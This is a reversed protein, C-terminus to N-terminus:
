RARDLTINLAVPTISNIVEFIIYVDYNHLDENPVVEVTIVRARKEYLTITEEIANKLQIATIDSMNEFLLSRIKCGVDPQFLREGPETLILNRVSRKVSNENTYKVLRKNQPHANFNTYFDSYYPKKDSAKDTRTIKDIRATDVM